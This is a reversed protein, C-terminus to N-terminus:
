GNTMPVFRVPMLKEIATGEETRTIRLLEQYSEGVPVILRGGVKLQKILKPPAEKPAATVIIADFPSEELWGEYGNGIRLHINNYELQKFIREAQEGLPKIIEITFVDKSLEALLAAQYGSGTGIELVKSNKDVMTAETM